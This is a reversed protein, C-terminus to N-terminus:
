FFNILNVEKRVSPTKTELEFYRWYAMVVSQTCVTLNECNHYVEYSKWLNSAQSEGNNETGMKFFRAEIVFICKM